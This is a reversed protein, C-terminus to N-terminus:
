DERVAFFSVGTRLTRNAFLRYDQGSITIIANPSLIGAGPVVFVGDLAGINGFPDNQVICPFLPLHGQRTAVFNDLSHGTPSISDGSWSYPIRDRSNAGPVIPWIWSDGPVSPWAALSTGFSRNYPLVEAGNFLRTYGALNGPDAMSAIRNNVDAFINQSKDGITSFIALPFPHQDPTGFASLFGVYSSTYDQAGTRTVLIIRKSNSYFWYNVVSSGFLHSIPVSSFGPHDNFRVPSSNIATSVGWEIVCTSVANRSHGRAHIYVRRAADYGPGQWIWIDDSIDAYSSTFDINDLDLFDERSGTRRPETSSVHFADTVGDVWSFDKTESAIWVLSSRRNISTWTRGDNSWQVLFDRPTNGVTTDARMTVERITTAVGFDYVASWMKDSINASRVLGGSVLLGVTGTGLSSLTWNAGVTAVNAGGIVTKLHLLQMGVFDNNVTQLEHVLIRWYRASKPGAVNMDTEGRLRTWGNAVLHTNMANLLISPTSATGSTFPM